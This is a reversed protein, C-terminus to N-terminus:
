KIGGELIIELQRLVEKGRKSLYLANRKRESLDPRVDLLDDGEVEGYNGSAGKRRFQSLMKVNRSLTGSLMGMLNAADSMTAGEHEAVFLFVAVQGLVMDPNVKDRLYSVARGFRIITIEMIQVEGSLKPTLENLEIFEDKAEDFVFAGAQPVSLV